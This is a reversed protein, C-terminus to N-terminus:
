GGHFMITLIQPQKVIRGSDGQAVAEGLAWYILGRQLLLVANELLADREENTKEKRNFHVSTRPIWKKILVTITARWDLSTM